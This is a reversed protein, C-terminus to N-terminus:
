DKCEVYGKLPSVIECITEIGLSWCSTTTKNPDNEMCYRVKGSEELFINYPDDYGTKIAFMNGEATDAWIGIILIIMMLCLAWDEKVTRM